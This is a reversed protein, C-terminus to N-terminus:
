FCVLVYWKANIYPTRGLKTINPETTKEGRGSHQTKFGTIARQDAAIFAVDFVCQSMGYKANIYPTRGLKTINPETTKAGRGFYQTKFGKKARQDAAIFAVDFVCQSLRNPM